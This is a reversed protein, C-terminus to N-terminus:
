AYAMPGYGDTVFGHDRRRNQPLPDDVGLFCFGLVHVELHLTGSAWHFKCLVEDRDM